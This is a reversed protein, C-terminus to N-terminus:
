PEESPLSAPTLWHQALGVELVQNETFDDLRITKRAMGALAAAPLLGVVESELVSVGRKEAKREVRAFVRQLPSREHDTVNMSVQVVGRHALAVGMAKVGPLGGNRGRVAAAIDRAAEIDDSDLNVNFAISFPRAGIASAGGSPHPTSSGYDPTWAADRMKTALGEFEGRRVNELPRRDAHQAAEGYLYVPVAFREAVAAGLRRALATCQAMTANGLPVFPVVDIAGIRPHVGRHERLDIRELAVAYVRLLADFLPAEDGVMTLVTRNHSPDSSADLLFADRSQGVAGVIADIVDRRRGESINPVTEIVAYSERCITPCSHTLPYSRNVGAQQKDSLECVEHDIRGMALMGVIVLTVRVVCASRLLGWGVNIATELYFLEQERTEVVIELASELSCNIDPTAHEEEIPRMGPSPRIDVACARRHGLAKAFRLLEDM